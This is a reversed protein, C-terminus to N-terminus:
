DCCVLLNYIVELSLLSAIGSSNDNTSTLQAVEFGGNGTSIGGVAIGCAGASNISGKGGDGTFTSASKCLHFSM